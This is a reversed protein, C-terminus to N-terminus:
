QGKKYWKIFEKIGDEFFYNPNYNLIKKAKNINAYTQQVDGLQEQLFEIKAKKRIEAELTKIMKKLNITKSDGLNIIEFGKVKFIASCIGQVIDDIYTYDRCSNGDGFVQIPEGDFILKAFKHIALDPRQRPGYVTFFRLCFINFNYLHHYTYCLLEGAKKSAAYPSIPNDVRDNESFPVTKNNGYISSSSAFIMNNLSYERMIELLNLTGNVNVDFYVVPHEISPRVGAKAALHIVVDLKNNSFIVRLINKDRIDGDVLLYNKNKLAQEINKMKIKSSYFNDFNDLVTIRHGEGLLKDALQSGIFGAGGTILIKL